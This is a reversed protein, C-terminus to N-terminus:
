SSFRTMELIDTFMYINTAFIEAGVTFTLYSSVTEKLTEKMNSNHYLLTTNFYCINILTVLFTIYTVLVASVINM